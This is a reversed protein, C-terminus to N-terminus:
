RLACVLQFKVYHPTFFPLDDNSEMWNGSYHIKENINSVKVKTNSATFGQASYFFLLLILIKKM